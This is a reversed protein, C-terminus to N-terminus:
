GAVEAVAEFAEAGNLVCLSRQRLPPTQFDGWIPVDAFVVFM